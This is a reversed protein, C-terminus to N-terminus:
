VNVQYFLHHMGSSQFCPHYTGTKTGEVGTQSPDDTNEKGSEGNNCCKPRAIVDLTGKAGASGGSEARGAGNAVSARDTCDTSMTMMLAILAVLTTLVVSVASGTLEALVTLVVPTMLAISKMYKWEELM